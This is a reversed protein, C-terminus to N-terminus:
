GVSDIRISAFPPLDLELAGNATRERGTARFRGPDLCAAVYSDEDLRRLRLHAAPIPEIRCRQPIPTLNAVLLRLRAGVQIALAEVALLDSSTTRLVEAGPPEGLDAFVHYVPFVIHRSSKAHPRPERDAVEAGMVGCPGTTEFYTASDAGATSLHKVSAITWAAAFLSPQRHDCHSSVSRGSEDEEGGVRDTRQKFAIPTVALSATGGCFARASRVTKGHMAATEAVSLDDDAHVTATLPWAVGDLPALEPRSRNLETFLVATGGFIQTRAVDRLERRVREVTAASSTAESRHLALVRALMPRNERLVAALERLSEDDNGVFLALELATHLARAEDLAITIRDRWSADTLELDIRLHCLRLEGLLALEESILPRGHRASTLGLAPLRGVTPGLTIRVPRPRQDVESHVADAGTVSLRVAQRFRQGQKAEHPFGLSLPTSYTKFSADTWNRQDETEFLDGDLQFSVRIGDDLDVELQDFPPFLGQPLGDVMRQPGIEWPLEHEIQRGESRARVRCGAHEAPHLVCWGIRNYRFPANAVGDFMCSISPDPGGSIEGHWSFDIGREVDVNRADFELHFRDHRADHGVNSLVTPVTAWDEARVAMYIRRVLEVSGTGVYRLDVGTLTGVM